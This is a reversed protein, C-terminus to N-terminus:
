TPSLREAVSLELMFHMPRDGGHTAMHFDGALTLRDHIEKLRGTTTRLQRQILEM